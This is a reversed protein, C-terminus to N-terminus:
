RVQVVPLRARDGRPSRAPGSVDLPQSTYPRYLLVEAVYEGAPLRNSIALEHYDGIVAGQRWRDTPSTGMVPHRLDSQAVDQGGADVLRVSVALDDPQGAIAEWYLILPLVAGPRPADVLYEADVLRIEGGLDALDRDGRPQGGPPGDARVQILPGSASTVGLQELGPVARTVYIARDRSRAEALTSELREMPYRIEVDPRVHEVLQLYWLVTAQEWDSVIIADPQAARLALSGFREALTGRQLDQRYSDLTEAARQARVAQIASSGWIPLAAVILLASVAPGALAFPLSRKMAEVLAVAGVSIAVSWILFPPLFFVWHRPLAYNSPLLYNAATVVQPLAVLALLGFEARRSRALFVSGIAGLVLGSIGFQSAAVRGFDSLRGLSSEDFQIQSTYGPDAFYEVLEGPTGVPWTGPPFGRAGAWPIYLYLLLPAIAAMAPSLVARLSRPRWGGLWLYAALAPAALLMSRHNTLSLGYILALLGLRPADPRARWRLAAWLVLALFLANLTYKDSASAQSWFLPTCGFYLAGLAAAFWSRTLSVGVLFLVSVAAAAFIANLLNLRWAVSGLPVLAAWLHNALVLLPYGTPHTLGLTPSVFQLEGADGGVVGPALTAAYATLSLVFLGLGISASGRIM